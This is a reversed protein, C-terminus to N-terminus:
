MKLGIQSLTLVFNYGVLLQSKKLQNRAGPFYDSLMKSLKICSSDEILVQSFHRLTKKKSSYIKEEFYEEMAKSFVSKIFVLQRIQLKKAIAQFSVSGKILCSLEIAWSRLSYHKKLLVMFFSLLFVEPTIKKPERKQFGTAKALKNINIKSFFITIKRQHIKNMILSNKQHHKAVVLTFLKKTKM